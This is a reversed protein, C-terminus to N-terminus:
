RQSADEFVRGRPAFRGGEAGAGDHLGSSGAATTGGEWAQARSRGDESGNEGFESTDDMEILDGAVWKRGGTGNAGHHIGRSARSTLKRVWGEVAGGINDLGVGPSHQLQLRELSNRPAVDPLHAAFLKNLGDQAPGPSHVERGLTGVGGPGQLRDVFHSSSSSRSQERPECREHLNSPQSRDSSPGLDLSASPSDLDSFSNSKRRSPPFYGLNRRSLRAIEVPSSFGDIQVWSDHKWPETNSSSTDAVSASVSPSPSISSFPPEESLRFPEAPSWPAHHKTPTKQTDSDDFGLHDVQLIHQEDKSIKRGRLGCADVPLVLTKRIQVRDNPWLRNARRFVNQPCAYKIMVGAMTDDPQVHHLYVLADPDGMEEPRVPSAHREDSDRRKGVISGSNLKANASLLVERKRAQVQAIRDDVTGKGVHSDMKPTPGWERPEQRRVSAFLSPHPKHRSSTFADSPKLYDGNWLTSATDRLASWSPGWIGASLSSDHNGPRLLSPAAKIRTDASPRQAQFNPSQGRFPTQINSTPSADESFSPPSRPDARNPPHSGSHEHSSSFSNHVGRRKRTRLISSSSPEPSSAEFNM